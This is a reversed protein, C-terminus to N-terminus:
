SLEKTRKEFVVTQELKWHFARSHAAGQEQEGGKMMKRPYRTVLTCVCAEELGVTLPRSNVILTPVVKFM